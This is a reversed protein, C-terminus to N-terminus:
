DNGKAVCEYISISYTSYQVDCLVHFYALLSTFVVTRAIVFFTFNYKIFISYFVTKFMCFLVLFVHYKLLHCFIYPYKIQLIVVTNIFYM